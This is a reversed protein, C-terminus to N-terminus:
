TGVAQRMHAYEDGTVNRRETRGTLRDYEDLLGALLDVLESADGAGAVAVFADYAAFAAYTAADYAAADYAAAAACADYAAYAAGRTAAAAANCEEQTARGECWAEATGLAEAFVARNAVRVLPLVQRACWVALRVSLVKQEDLPTGSEATGFLRGILPVLQHRESDDLEDNVVQAARALVPHTCAPTDSWPEGALLSVYEMVCAGQSPDDHVGSSLVPMYDNM